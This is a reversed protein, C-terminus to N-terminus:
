GHRKAFDVMFTTLAEVAEITVANYLSARMGGVARHGALGLLNAKKAEDLFAKDLAADKLIFPVNM